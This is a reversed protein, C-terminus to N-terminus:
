STSNSNNNNNNSAKPPTPPPTAPPVLRGMKEIRTISEKPPTSPKASKAM